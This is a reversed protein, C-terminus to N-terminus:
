QGGNDFCGCSQGVPYDSGCHGCVRTTSPAAPAVAAPPVAVPASVVQAAQKAAKTAARKASAADAKATATSPQGDILAGTLTDAFAVLAAWQEPTDAAVVRMGPTLGYSTPEPGSPRKVTYHLCIYDVWVGNQLSRSGGTTEVREITRFRHDLLVRDGVQVTEVPVSCLEVRKADWAVRAKAGRKSQQIGKGKCGFCTTGHMQCYSYHGSGGCRSCTETEFSIKNM